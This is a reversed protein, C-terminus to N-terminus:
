GELNTGDEKLRSFRVERWVCLDLVNPVLKRRCSLQVLSLKILNASAIAHPDWNQSTIHEKSQTVMKKILVKDVM